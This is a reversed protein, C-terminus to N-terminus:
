RFLGDLLRHTGLLYSQLAADVLPSWFLMALAGVSLFPGFPVYGMRRVVAYKGLGFISGALCALVFTLLVGRWGLLSGIMAMYKVDGFGMADKRFVLKGLVGVLWISGGGALAGAASAALSALHANGIAWPLGHGPDWHFGRQLVVGEPVGGVPGHLFPFAASAALGLVLGSITIEDPLIRFELDIFTCAIMAGLLWGDLAFTVAQPWRPDPVGYLARHGAVLFLGGTLLEVLTYRISIPNGCHRCKGGLLCWSLVPLNDYWAIWALCRPCRSRPGVISMCNRPLRFICVNLFSGINLGLVGSFIWLILRQTEAM